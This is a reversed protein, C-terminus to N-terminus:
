RKLAPAVREMFLRMSRLVNAHGVQHGCNM